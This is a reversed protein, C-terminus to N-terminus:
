IRSYGFGPLYYSDQSDSSSPFVAEFYSNKIWRKVQQLVERFRNRNPPLSKHERETVLPQHLPLEDDMNASFTRDRTLKTLSSGSPSTAAGSRGPSSAGSTVIPCDVPTSSRPQQGGGVGGGGRGRGSAASGCCVEPTNMNGTGVTTGGHQVQAVVCTTHTMIVRSLHPSSKLQHHQHQHQHQHDNSNTDDDDSRIATLSLELISHGDFEESLVDETKATIAENGKSSTRRNSSLGNSGSATSSSSSTNNPSLGTCTSLQMQPPPPPSLSPPPSQHDHNHHLQQQQADTDDSRQGVAARVSTTSLPSM